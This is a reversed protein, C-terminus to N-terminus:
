SAVNQLRAFRAASHFIAAGLAADHADGGLAYAVCRRALVDTPDVLRVMQGGPCALVADRLLLPLETCALVIVQVGQGVLDDVAVALDDACEGSTYGAKAGRPGYIANMLRAQAFTGPAIQKVGRAELAHEYVRSALTGSTALVGVERL